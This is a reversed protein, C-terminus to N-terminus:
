AYFVCKHLSPAWNQFFEQMYRWYRDLEGWASLSTVNYQSPLNTRRHARRFSAKPRCHHPKPRANVTCRWQAALPVRAGSKFLNCIFFAKSPRQSCTLSRNASMVNGFHAYYHCCTIGVRRPQQLSHSPWTLFQFLGLSITGYETVEKNCCKNAFIKLPMNMDNLNETIGADCM